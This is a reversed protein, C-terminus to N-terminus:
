LINKGQVGFAAATALMHRDNTYIERFGNAVACMLHLADSGRVFLTHDLSKFAGAASKALSDPLPLWKWLGQAEDEEFQSFLVRFTAKTIKGERLHRHFVAALEVRGIQCCAIGSASAALARVEGSGIENLYCKALYATDFYIM